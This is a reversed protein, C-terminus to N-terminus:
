RRAIETAVSELVALTEKAAKRWSFQKVRKEGLKVLKNRVEPKVVEGFSWAKIVEPSALRFRMADFEITKPQEHYM